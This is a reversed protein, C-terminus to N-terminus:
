VVDIIRFTKTYDNLEKYLQDSLVIGTHTTVIASCEVTLERISDSHKDLVTGVDCQYYDCLVSM